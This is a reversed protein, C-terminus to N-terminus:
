FLPKFFFPTEDVVGVKLSAEQVAFGVVALMAVRGHKIEAMQMRDRGGKDLPYLGFPDFGLNGPFYAIEDSPPARARQVGYLDIAGTMGLCFGWWEPVIKDLGGNL